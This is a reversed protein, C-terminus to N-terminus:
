PTKVATAAAIPQRERLNQGLELQYLQEGERLRIQQDDISEVTAQIDAINVKDGTRVVTKKNQSRDFLWAERVGNESVIGVLFTFIARDDDVTIKINATATLPPTGTDTVTITVPYEGPLVPENPTWELRGDKSNVMVGEPAGTLKFTLQQPETEPDALKLPLTWPRGLIAVPVTEITLTPPLNPARVEVSLEAVVKGHDASPHSVEVKVPLKGLPFDISPIWSFKGTAPDITMEKPAGSLLQFTPKGLTPDFNTPSLTYDFAQGRTAVRELSSPLELRYPIPPRPKVFVNAQLYALFQEPTEKAMEPNVPLAEVITGVPHAVAETQGYGRTVTASTGKLATVNVYEQDIRLTFPPMRPFGEAPKELELVVTDVDAAAALTTQPFLSKRKPGDKLSLAEAVLVIRLQPDGESEYSKVELKSVRHLLGTRRFQYLFFALQSFRAEGEVSIPLNTYIDKPSVGPNLPKVIVDQWGAVTALQTLWDQYLHQGLTSSLRSKKDAAPDPPLARSKWDTLDRQAKLIALEEDTKKQVAVKLSEIQDYRNTFPEFLWARVRGGGFYLVAATVFGILLYKERPQM